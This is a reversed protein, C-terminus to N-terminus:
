SEVARLELQPIPRLEPSRHVRHDAITNREAARYVQQNLASAQTSIVQRRM